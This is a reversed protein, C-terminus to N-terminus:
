VKQQHVPELKVNAVDEYSPPLDQPYCKKEECVVITSGLAEAEKANNVVRQKPANAPIVLCLWLM